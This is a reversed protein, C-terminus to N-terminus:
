WIWKRLGVQGCVCVRMYMSICVICPNIQKSHKIYGRTSTIRLHPIVMMTAKCALVIVVAFVFASILTRKYTYLYTSKVRWVSVCCVCICVRIYICYIHIWFLSVFAYKYIFFCVFIPVGFVFVSVVSMHVSMRGCWVYICVCLVFAVCICVCLCVSVLSSIVCVCMCVCCVCFCVCWVWICVFWPVFLLCLPLCIHLCVRVLMVWGGNGMGGWFKLWYRGWADRESRLFYWNNTASWIVTM